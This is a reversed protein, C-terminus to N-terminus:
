EPKNSTAANDSMPFWKVLATTIEHGTAPPEATQPRALREAQAAQRQRATNIRYAEAMAYTATCNHFVLVLLGAAVVIHLNGETWASIVMIAIFANFVCAFKM